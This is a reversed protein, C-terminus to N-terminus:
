SFYRMSRAFNYYHFIWFSTHMHFLVRFFQAKAQHAQRQRIWVIAGAHIHFQQLRHHVGEQFLAKGIEVGSPHVAPELAFAGDPFRQHLPVRPVAVRQRILEMGPKEFGFLIPLPNELLLELLRAHVIKVIVQEVVHSGVVILRILFQIAETPQFFLLRLTQRPM